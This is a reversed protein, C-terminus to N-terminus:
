GLRCEDFVVCIAAEPACVAAVLSRDLGLRAGGYHADRPPANLRSVGTLDHELDAFGEACQPCSAFHREVAVINDSEGYAHEIMEEETLHKM